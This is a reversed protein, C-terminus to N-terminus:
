SNLNSQFPLTSAMITKASTGRIFVSRTYIDKVKLLRLEQRPRIFLYFIFKVFIYYSNKEGKRVYRMSRMGSSVRIPLISIQIKRM